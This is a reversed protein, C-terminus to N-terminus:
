VRGRTDFIEVRPGEILTVWVRQNGTEDYLVVSPGGGQHLIALMLQCQGEENSFSAAVGGDETVALSLRPTGKEDQFDLKAQGDLLHLSVRPEEQEGLLAFLPRDDDNTGLVAKKRGDAGRLVFSEAEVVRPGTSGNRETTMTARSPTSSCCRLEPCEVG